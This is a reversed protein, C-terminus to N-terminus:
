WLSQIINMLAPNSHGRNSVSERKQEVRHQDQIHDNKSVAVQSEASVDKSEQTKRKKAKSENEESLRCSGEALRKRRKAVSTRTSAQDSKICQARRVM